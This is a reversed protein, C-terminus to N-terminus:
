KERKLRPSVPKKFVIDNTSVPNITHNKPVLEGPCAYPDDAHGAHEKSKHHVVVMETIALSLCSRMAYANAVAFFGM